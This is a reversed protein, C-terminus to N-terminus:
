GFEIGNTETLLMLSTGGRPLCTCHANDVEEDLIKDVDAAMTAFVHFRRVGASM